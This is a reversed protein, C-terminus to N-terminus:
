SVNSWTCLLLASIVDTMSVVRKLVGSSEVLWVRHIQHEVMAQIINQISSGEPVSVFHDKRRGTVKKIKSILETIPLLFSKFNFKSDGTVYFSMERLDSASVQDLIVKSTENVVALASVSKEHLLQFADIAVTTPSVRVIRDYSEGMKLESATKDKCSGLLVPNKHLLQIVTSQTFVHSLKEDSGHIAVRHVGTSFIKLIDILKTNGPFAFFPNRKSLDIIELVNQVHFRCNRLMLMSFDDTELSTSVDGNKNPVPAKSFQVLSAVLDLVDIFAVPKGKQDLVPASTLKHKELELLAREIHWDSHCFVVEQHKVFQDIGTNLFTKLASQDDVSM